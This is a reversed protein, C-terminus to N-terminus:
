KLLVMKETQRFNDSKITYIYVDVSVKQGLDNKADWIVSHFGANM